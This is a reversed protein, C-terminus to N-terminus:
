GANSLKLRVENIIAQRIVAANRQATRFRCTLVARGSTDDSEISVTPDPKKAIRSDDRLTANLVAARDAEKSPVSISFSTLRGSERTTTCPQTGCSGMPRSSLHAM